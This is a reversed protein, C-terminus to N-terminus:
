ESTRVGFLSPRTLTFPLQGQWTEGADASFKLHWKGPMEEMDDVHWYLNQRRVCAPNADYQRFGYYASGWRRGDPRYRRTLIISERRVGEWLTSQIVFEDDPTFENTPAVPYTAYVKGPVLTRSLVLEHSRPDIKATMGKLYRIPAPPGAVTVANEIEQRDTGSTFWAEFRYEGALADLDPAGLFHWTSEGPPVNVRRRAGLNAHIRGEPDRTQWHLTAPQAINAENRMDISLTIAQCPQITTQRSGDSTTTYAEDIFLSGPIVVQKQTLPLYAIQDGVPPVTATPTPTVTSTITAPSTQLTVLSLPILLTLDLVLLSFWGRARLDGRHIQRSMIVCNYCVYRPKKLSM